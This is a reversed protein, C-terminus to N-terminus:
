GLTPDRCESRAATQHACQTSKTTSAVTPSSTKDAGFHAPIALPAGAPAIEREALNPKLPSEGDEGGGKERWLSQAPAPQEGIGGLGRRVRQQEGEGGRSLRQMAFRGKGREGIGAPRHGQGLFEGARGGGRGLTEGRRVLMFGANGRADFM